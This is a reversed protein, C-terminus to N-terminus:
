KLLAGRIQQEMFATVAAESEHLLDISSGRLPVMIVSSHGFLVKGDLEILKVMLSSIPGVVFKLPCIEQTVMHRAHSCLDATRSQSAM